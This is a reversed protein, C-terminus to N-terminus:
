REKFTIMIEKHFNEIFFVCLQSISSLFFRNLFVFLIQKKGDRKGEFSNLYASITDVEEKTELVM